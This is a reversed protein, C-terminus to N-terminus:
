IYARVRRVSPRVVSRESTFYIYFSKGQYCYLGIACNTLTSFINFCKNTMDFYSDLIDNIIFFVINM